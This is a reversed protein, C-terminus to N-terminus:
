FIWMNESRSTPVFTVPIAVFSGFAGSIIVAGAGAHVSGGCFITGALAESRMCDLRNLDMYTGTVCHAIRMKM